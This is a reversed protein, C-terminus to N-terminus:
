GRLLITDALEALSDEGRESLGAVVGARDAASRNQSMKWKGQLRTITIEFGAIARLQGDVYAPPADSVRWPAPFKQEHQNTLSELFARLEGADEFLRVTGYAHVAVYNWTPVVRGTEQKAPYWSPSIYGQPGNFIALVEGVQGMERWQENARSLHGRLKGYPAPEPDLLLPVHNAILGGPGCTVIAALPHNRM